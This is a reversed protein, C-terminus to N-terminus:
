ETASATKTIGLNPAAAAITVDASASKDTGLLSATNTATGASTSQVVATITYTRSANPALGAQTPCEVLGASSVTCATSAPTVSTVNVANFAGPVPDYLHYPQSATNGNNRVTVTYTVTDGQAVPGTPSATKTIGLDAVASQIQVPATASNNTTNSENQTGSITATNPAAGPTNAIATLKYARSTGPALAGQGTCTLTNGAVSCGSPPTGSYAVSTFASPVIDTLTYGSSNANGDNKVVIDFTVPQDAVVTSPTATKTVTLDAAQVTVTAPASTNNTTVSEEPLTSATATNSTSGPTTATAAITYTNTATGTPVTQNVCTVVRTVQDVSCGTAPQTVRINSFNAPVTDTLTFRNTSAAGKNAVTITYTVDAGAAVTTNPSVAKTVELDAVPPPSVVFSESATTTSTWGTDLTGYNSAGFRANMEVSADYTGPAPATTTCSFKGTGGPSLSYWNTYNPRLQWGGAEVVPVPTCNVGALTPGVQNSWGGVTSPRYYMTTRGSTRTNRVTVTWTVTDGEQAPNPTATLQLTFNGSNTVVPGALAPLGQTSWSLLGSLLALVAFLAACKGVRQRMSGRRTVLDAARRLTGPRVSGRRESVRDFSM